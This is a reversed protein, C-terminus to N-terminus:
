ISVLICKDKDESAFTGVSVVLVNLVAPMYGADTATRSTVRQVMDTQSSSNIEIKTHRETSTHVVHQFEQVRHDGTTM